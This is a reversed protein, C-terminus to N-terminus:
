CTNNFWMWNKKCGISRVFGSEYYKYAELSKYKKFAEMTYSSDKNICYNVIDFYQLNTPLSDTCHKIHVANHLFRFTVLVFQANMHFYQVANTKTSTVKPNRCLATWNIAMENRIKAFSWQSHPRHYAISCRFFDSTKISCCGSYPLATM